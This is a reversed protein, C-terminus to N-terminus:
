GFEVLSRLSELRDAYAPIDINEVLMVIADEGTEVYYGRRIGVPKFGFREYMTQAPLNSRRVELSVSRGGNVLAADVLGLMLKMGVRKRHYAPDVAITTIHSELGSTMLGGYGIVEAGLRAALYARDARRAIEQYFLAASWPRPYVAEEIKMVQRVHRRRMPVLEVESLRFEPQRAVASM